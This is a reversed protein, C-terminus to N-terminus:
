RGICVLTAGRAEAGELQEKAIYLSMGTEPLVAAVHLTRGVLCVACAAPPAASNKAGSRSAMQEASIYGGVADGLPLLMGDAHM